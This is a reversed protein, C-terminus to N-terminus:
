VEKIVIIQYIRKSNKVNVPDLLCKSFIFIFFINVTFKKKTGKKEERYINKENRASFNKKKKNNKSNEERKWPFDKIFIKM